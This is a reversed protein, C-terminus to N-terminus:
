VPDYYPPQESCDIAGSGAPTDSPAPPSTPTPMPTPGGGPSAMSPSPATPSAGDGDGVRISTWYGNDLRTVTVTDGTAGVEIAWTVTAGPATIPQQWNPPRKASVLAISTPSPVAGVSATVAWEAAGSPQDLHRSLSARVDIRCLAGAAAITADDLLPLNRRARARDIAKRVALDVRLTRGGVEPDGPAATEAIL